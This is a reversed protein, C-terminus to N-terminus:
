KGPQVWSRSGASARGNPKFSPWMCQSVLQDLPQNQTSRPSCVARRDLELDQSRSIAQFNSLSADFAPTVNRTLHFRASRPSTSINRILDIKTIPQMQLTRTGLFIKCCYLVASEGGFCAPSTGGSFVRTASSDEYPKIYTPFLSFISAEPSLLLVHKILAKCLTSFIEVM